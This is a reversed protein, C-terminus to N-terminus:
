QDVSFLKKDITTLKNKFTSLIEKFIKEVIRREHRYILNTEIQVYKLM